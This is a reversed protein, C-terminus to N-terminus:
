VSVTTEKSQDIQSALGKKSYLNTLKAIVLTTNGTAVTPYANRAGTELPTRTRIRLFAEKRLASHAPMEYFM